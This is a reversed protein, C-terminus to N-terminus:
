DHNVPANLKEKTSTREAMEGEEEGKAKNNKRWKHKETHCTGIGKREHPPEHSPEVTTGIM